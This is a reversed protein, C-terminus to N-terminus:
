YNNYAATRFYYKVLPENYSMASRWVMTDPAAKAVLLPYDSSYSRSLWYLYERYDLNSVETEDMYFSSVSVTRPLNNREFSLDEEVMGMTFRGGQVFALGPGTQQGNYDAITFGGL